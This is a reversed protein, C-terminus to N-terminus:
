ARGEQGTQHAVWDWWEDDFRRAEVKARPWDILVPSGGIVNVAYNCADKLNDSIWEDPRGAAEDAHDRCMPVGIIGKVARDYGYGRPPALLRLYHTPKRTCGDRHCVRATLATTTM